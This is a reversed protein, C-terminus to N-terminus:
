NSTFAADLSVTERDPNTLTLQQPGASTAPATITITNADKFVVSTSKGSLKATIGSEFGSGRITLSTGGAAPGSAPTISGIALPVSALQVVTLGANQPTGDTSTLAFLRAGTEDVALFSGHLADVDTLLQQALVIRMRLAGSHADLIDIGGRTGAAGAAGTLFPQYILAGSPHFALGPVVSRGPTQAFESLAPVATLTLGASRVEAGSAGQMAFSTGDASVALDSATSNATTTSFQNPAAAEWSALPSGPASGFAVFVRDGAANSQVLPAGTIASVQPQPAPQFVPPSAALNMQALCSSCGNSAGGEGSMGVFVTQASTAAVRAPGSNTYGPVGGVSIKMGNATDPDILYLNQAGFDAMVLQSGDPTLALGRFGAAPPPGGPAQIAAVFQHGVLDFVDVHDINSIYLRQRKQDYSIFKFFGAKAFFQMSQAFQFSGAATTTGSPAAIVVDAKGSGAAVPTTLTIRELAFPYGPAIQGADDIKQIAAATGGIKVSVKSADSGFGFGYIEITDGGIKSGVNPLVQLIQPGYSFADVALAMWGNSFYATVNVPGAAANAPATAQIQTSGAPVASSALQAGFNLQALGTFNQGALTTVTGGANPGEAPLLAPAAAFVPAPNPLSVPKAVDILAVGRNGLGIVMGNDNAEEIQSGDGQGSADPVQGLLHLDHGDLVTVAPVAAARETVYLASGDRAFTMGAVRLPVAAVATNLSADLLWVQTSGNATLAVAFRTGDNNAAVVPITGSGLGRPGAVANGSGDFVAVEGSSDSAGVLLKAHDGTRAMVGLGNQFLQPEVATLNMIANSGPNWLALLSEGQGAQRLRVVLNGNAMALLEEPRDFTVNPLPALVPIAVRKKVQLLQPDIAAVENTVTGAWLTGGDASLDVSTIGAVAIQGKRALTEGDIVEIRNMARNAVFVQKRGADFVMHRHSAEGAPNDLAAVSDTRVFTTRPLSSVAGSQVNLTLEASHSLSGSSGQASIPFSGTPAGAAAGFLVTTSAGAAVNFPSAPNTTVGSPMGTLAVQVSGTFGNKADVSVGVGSSTAGQAVAVANTSLTLSFDAIAPPPPPPGASSGGGCGFGPLAALMLLLVPVSPRLRGM